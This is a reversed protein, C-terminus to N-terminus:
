RAGWRVSYSVDYGNGQAPGLVSGEFYISYLGTEPIQFSVEGSGSATISEVFHPTGGVPGFTKLLGIRLSGSRVEADYRAFFTQGEFFLVHKLGLGGGSNTGSAYGSFTVHRSEYGLTSILGAAYAAGAFVLAAIIVVALPAAVRGRALTIEMLDVEDEIAARLILCGM